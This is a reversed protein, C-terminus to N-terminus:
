ARVFRVSDRATLSVIGDPGPDHLEGDVTFGCNMRMEAVHVNESMYGNEPRVFTRPRGRLIGAVSAGPKTANPGIGTLRLDGPGHGWFPRMGSFLRDLTSAILLTFESVPAPKGDLLIDIKDPKLVGERDGLITRGILTGTLLTSGLVGQGRRAPFHEHVLGIARHIMGAGFFMGYVPDEFPRYDVRLVRRRSVREEIRGERACTLIENLGKLPDRSAGIDRASMNTRGGRLPAIMPVRDGFPQNALVETLTRVLTGDGGNVILLEVDSEALAALAEPVAAASTTEVTSVEPFGRLHQLLRTTMKDSRGARLNSLLGIQL